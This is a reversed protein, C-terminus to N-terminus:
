LSACSRAAKDNPAVKKQVVARCLEERELQRGVRLKFAIVVKRQRSIDSCSNKLNGVLLLTSSPFFGLSYCHLENPTVPQFGM